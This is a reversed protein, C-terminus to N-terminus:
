AAHDRALTSAALLAAIILAVLINEMHMMEKIWNYRTNQKWDGFFYRL